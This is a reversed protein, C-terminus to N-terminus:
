EPRTRDVSRSPIAQVMGIYDKDAHSLVLLDLRRGPV